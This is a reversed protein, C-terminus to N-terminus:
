TKRTFVFTTWETAIPKDAECDKASPSEVPPHSLMDKDNMDLQGDKMGLDLHLCDNQIMLRVLCKSMDGPDFRDEHHWAKGCVKTGHQHMSFFRYESSPVGAGVAVDGTISIDTHLMKLEPHQAHFQRLREIQEDPAGAAKQAALTQEFDCTWNGAFPALLASPQPSGFPGADPQGGCGVGSSLLTALMLLTFSSRM